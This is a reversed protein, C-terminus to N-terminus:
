TERTDYFVFGSLMKPYFDTSKPPMVGGKSAVAAVIAPTVPNLIFAIDSGREQVDMVAAEGSRRYSLHDEESLGRLLPKLFNESLRQTDLATVDDPAGVEGLRWLYNGGHVVVGVTGPGASRVRGLFHAAEGTSPVPEAGLRQILPALGRSRDGPLGKLVRHTPLIVLGPDDAEVVAALVRSAGPVDPHEDAYEGAVTFRHHGDAIVFRSGDYISELAAVAAPDDIISFLNEVGDQDLARAERRAGAIADVPLPPGEHRLLFILELHSASAELLRRRDDRAKKHTREHHFVRDRKQLDILGVVARRRLKRGDPGTFEQEYLGYSPREDRKIVGEARWSAFLEAAGRHWSEDTPGSEGRIVRVINKPSAALYRSKLEASIKDYPETVLAQHDGAKAKDYRLARFAHFM